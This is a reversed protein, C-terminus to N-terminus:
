PRQTAPRWAPSEALRPSRRMFARGEKPSSLLLRGLAALLAVLMLVLLPTVLPSVADETV